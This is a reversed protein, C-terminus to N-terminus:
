VSNHNASIATAPSLSGRGTPMTAQATPAGKATSAASSNAAAPAESTTYTVEAPVM